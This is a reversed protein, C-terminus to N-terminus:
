FIKKWLKFARIDSPSLDFWEGNGRKSEFRKHWYNEIGTTDDTKISHILRLEEPLQMRIEKGRRVSDTTKGLKYHRGHKYLYVEGPRTKIKEDSTIIREKEDLKELIPRCADIIDQYGGKNHCPDQM